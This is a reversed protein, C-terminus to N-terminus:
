KKGIEEIRERHWHCCSEFGLVHPSSAITRGVTSGGIAEVCSSLAM